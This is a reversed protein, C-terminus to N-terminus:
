SSALVIASLQRGLRFRSCREDEQADVVRLPGVGPEYGGQTVQHVEVAGRDQNDSGGPRLLKRAVPISTKAPHSRSAPSSPVPESPDLEAGEPGRVRGLEDEVVRRVGALRGDGGVAPDVGVALHEVM